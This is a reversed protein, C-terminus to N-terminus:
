LLPCRIDRNHIVMALDDKSFITLRLVPFGVAYQLIFHILVHGPMPEGPKFTTLEATIRHMKVSQLVLDLLVALSKGIYFASYLLRLKVILRCEFCLLLDILYVTHALLVDGTFDHHGTLFISVERSQGLFTQRTARLDPIHLSTQFVVAVPEIAVGGPILVEPVLILFQGFLCSWKQIRHLVERLQDARPLSTCRYELHYRQSPDSMFGACLFMGRLYARARKGETLAPFLVEDEGTGAGDKGILHLRRLVDTFQRPLDVTEGVATRAQTKLNGARRGGAATKEGNGNFFLTCLDADINVTKLILTFCKKLASENGGSFTVATGGNELPSFACLNQLLVALETEREQRGRTNVRALEERLAASQTVAGDLTQVFM